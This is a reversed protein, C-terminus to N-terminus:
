YIRKISLFNNKFAYGIILVLQYAHGNTENMIEVTQVSGHLTFNMNSQFHTFSTTIQDTQRTWGSFAGTVGGSTVSSSPYLNFSSGSINMTGSVTALQISRISTNTSLQVKINDLQIAVGDNVIASVRDERSAWNTGNYQYIASADTNYITLGAEPSSIANMQTNTLRPMLFGKTTSSIDLLSSSNPSTTNIGVQANLSSLSFILLLFLGFHMRVFTRGFHTSYCIKEIEIQTYTM